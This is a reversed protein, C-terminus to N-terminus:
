SRPGSHDPDRDRYLSHDFGCHHHASVFIFRCRPRHRVDHNIHSTWRRYRQSRECLCRSPKSLCRGAVIFVHDRLLCVFLHRLRVFRDGALLKHHVDCPDAGAHLTRIWYSSLGAGFFNGIDAALFPAWFGLISQEIRIGRSVLYIGFWEAVLFWYPDLLARGIIIGWTQKLGLLERWTAPKQAEPEAAQGKRILELEEATVRPHLRPKYYLWLWIGVWIFGLLGTIGMVPRWSHFHHYFYLFIWPAIAGGLSSGSDFLAVAWARERDPFWESVAKAAGPWNAAEGCGLLFRSARFGWLGSVLSGLAAVTSYFTVSIALGKRTGVRDMLKGSVMQMITYSLRFAILISAFDSNTWHYDAMLYPALVSLTQRDLYNIVTSGLLLGGIWWRLNKIATKPPATTVPTM